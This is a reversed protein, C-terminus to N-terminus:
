ATVTGKKRNVVLYGRAEAERQAADFAPYITVGDFAKGIHGAKGDIEVEIAWGDGREIIKATDKM